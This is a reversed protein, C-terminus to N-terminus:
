LALIVFTFFLQVSEYLFAVRFINTFNVSQRWDGCTVVVLNEKSKIKSLKIDNSSFIMKFCHM